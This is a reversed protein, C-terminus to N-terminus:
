FSIEGPAFTNVNDRAGELWSEKRLIWFIFSPSLYSLLCLLQPNPNESAFKLGEHDPGPHGPLPNIKLPQPLTGVTCLTAMMSCACSGEKGFLDQSVGLCCNDLNIIVRFIALAPESQRSITSISIHIRNSHISVLNTIRSVRHQETCNLRQSM